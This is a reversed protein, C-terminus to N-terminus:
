GRKIGTFKVVRTWKETEEITLKEFGAPSTPAATGGPDALRAQMRPDSLAANIKRNLLNIIDSPTNKPRRRRTDRAGLVRDAVTRVAKSLQRLSAVLALASHAM